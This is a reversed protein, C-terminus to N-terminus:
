TMSLNLLIIAYGNWVIMESRSCHAHTSAFSHLLNLSNIPRCKLRTDDNLCAELAELKQKESTNNELNAQVDIHKVVKNRVLM